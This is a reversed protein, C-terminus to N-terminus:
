PSSRKVDARTLHITKVEGRRGLPKLTEGNLTLIIGQANGTTIDFSEKARLTQIENLELVRQLTTKGDADVAVWSRETAAIQLVLGEEASPVPVAEQSLSQNESSSPLSEGPTEPGAWAAEAGGPAALTEAQPKEGSPAAIDAVQAGTPATGRSYHYVAYGGTLMLVALLIALWPGRAKERVPRPRQAALRGLDVEGRPDAALQFEAIVHDEDLGLYSAYARVFSRNFIGGPLKGFQEKELAELFRVSIKTAASIEKLTVGRMERERQLNEGFSGMAGSEVPNRLFDM